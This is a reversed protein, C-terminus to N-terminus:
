LSTRISATTSRTSSRRCASTCMRCTCATSSSCTRRTAARSRLYRLRIALKVANPVITGQRSNKGRRPNITTLDASVLGLLKNFSPWTLRYRRKFQAETLRAVHDGWSFERVAMKKGQPGQGAHQLSAAAVVRQRVAAAAAGADQSCRLRARPARGAGPRRRLAPELGGHRNKLTCPFLLTTFVWGVNSLPAPTSNLNSPTSFLNTFFLELGLPASGGSCELPAVAIGGAVVACRSRSSSM